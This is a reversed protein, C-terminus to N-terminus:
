KQENTIEWVDQTPGGIVEEVKKRAEEANKARVKADYGVTLEYTVCFTKM